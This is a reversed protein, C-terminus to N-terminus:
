QSANASLHLRSYQRQQPLAHDKNRNNINKRHHYTLRHKTQLACPLTLRTTMGFLTISVRAGQPANRRHFVLEGQLTDGTTFVTQKSTLRIEMAPTPSLSAIIQPVYQASKMKRLPNPYISIDLHPPHQLFGHSSSSFHRFCGM